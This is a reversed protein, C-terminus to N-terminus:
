PLLIRDGDPQRRRIMQVKLCAYLHRTAYLSGNFFGDGQVPGADVEFASGTHEIGDRRLQRAVRRRAVAAGHVDVGPAIRGQGTHQDVRAAVLVGCKQATPELVVFLAQLYQDWRLHQLVEKTETASPEFLAKLAGIM